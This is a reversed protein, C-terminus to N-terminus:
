KLFNRRWLQFVMLNWLEKRNNQQGKFHNQKLREV